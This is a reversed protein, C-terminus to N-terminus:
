LTISKLTCENSPMSLYKLDFLTEVIILSHFAFHFIISNWFSVSIHIKEGEDVHFEAYWISSQEQITKFM